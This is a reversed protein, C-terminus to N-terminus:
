VCSSPSLLCTLARDFPETHLAFYLLEHEGVTREVYGEGQRKVGGHNVLNEPVWRATREPHIVKRGAALHIPRPLGTQPDIRQYDYLKYTYSGM